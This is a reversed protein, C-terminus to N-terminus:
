TEKTTCNRFDKAFHKSEHGVTLLYKRIKSERKILNGTYREEKDEKRTVGNESNAKWGQM